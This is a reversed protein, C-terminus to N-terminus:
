RSGAGAQASLQSQASAGPQAPVGPGGPLGPVESDDFLTGQPGAAASTRTGPVRDGDSGRTVAM